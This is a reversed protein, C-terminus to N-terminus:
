GLLDVPDQIASSLNDRTNYVKRNNNILHLYITDIDHFTEKYVPSDDIMFHIGHEECYDRKARNWKEADAYPLGDRWEIVEGDDELKQVISFFHTFWCTDHYLMDCFMDELELCWKQGTLIHVEGGVARVAVILERFASPYTDIVGHIDIGIKLM